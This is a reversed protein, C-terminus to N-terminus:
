EDEPAMDMKFCQIVDRQVISGAQMSGRDEKLVEFMDEDPMHMDEVDLYKSMVKVGRPEGGDDPSAITYVEASERTRPKVRQNKAKRVMIKRVEPSIGMLERESLEIKADYIRAAIREAM